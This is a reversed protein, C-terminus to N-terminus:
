RRDRVPMKYVTFEVEPDFIGMSRDDSEKGLPCMVSKICTEHCTLFCNQCKVTKTFPWRLCNRCIRCKKYINKLQNLAKTDHGYYCMEEANNGSKLLRNLFRDIQNKFSM